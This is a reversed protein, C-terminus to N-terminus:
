PPSVGGSEPPSVGGASHGSGAHVGKVGQAITDRSIGRYSLALSVWGGWFRRARVKVPTRAGCVNIVARVGEGSLRRRCGAPGGREVVGLTKGGVSLRVSVRELGPYFVQASEFWAMNPGVTLRAACADNRCARGPRAVASGSGILAAAVALGLLCPRLIRAPFVM